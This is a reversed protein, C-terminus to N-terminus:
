EYINIKVHSTHGFFDPIMFIKVTFVGKQFRILGFDTDGDLFSELSDYGALQATYDPMVEDPLRSDETYQFQYDNVQTSNFSTHYCYGEAVGPKPMLWAPYWAPIGDIITDSDDKIKTGDYLMKCLEKSDDAVREAEAMDGDAIMHGYFAMKQGAPELLPWDGDLLVIYDGVSAHIVGMADYPGPFVGGAAKYTNQDFPSLTFTVAEDCFPIANGDGYVFLNGSYGNDSPSATLMARYEHNLPQNSEKYITNISINKEAPLSIVTSDPLPLQVCKGDYVTDAGNGSMTFKASDGDVTLLATSPYDPYMTIYMPHTTSGLKSDWSYGDYETMSGEYWNRTELEGAVGLTLKIHPIRYYYILSTDVTTGSISGTDVINVGEGEFVGPSTEYLTMKLTDDSKLSAADPMDPPIDNLTTDFVVARVLTTTPAASPSPTAASTEPTAPATPMTSPEATISPIYAPTNTQEGANGATQGSCAALSFAMIGALALVAASRILKHVTQKLATM